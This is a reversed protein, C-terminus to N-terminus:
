SSLLIALWAVVWMQLESDVPQSGTFAFDAEIPLSRHDLRILVNPVM